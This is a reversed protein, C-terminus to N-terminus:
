NGSDDGTSEEEMGFIYRVAELIDHERGDEAAARIRATPQHLMKQLLSRTLREIKDRDEESLHNLQAMTRQLEDQRMWEARDRLQRIFPVARLGTYWRWFNEVEEAILAEAKPVEAIRREYNATVIHQLDDISYVFVNPLEGITPEVDRPIAIDIIFLPSRLKAPMRRRFEDLTIM